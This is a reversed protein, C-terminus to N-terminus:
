SAKLKEKNCPVDHMIMIKQAINSSKLDVPQWWESSQKSVTNRVVIVHVDHTWGVEFVDVLKKRVFSFVFCPARSLIWWKLDLCPNSFNNIVKHKHQEKYFWSYSCWIALPPRTRVDSTTPNCIRLSWTKRLNCPYIGFCCCCRDWQM